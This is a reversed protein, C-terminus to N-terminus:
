CTPERKCWGLITNVDMAATARDGHGGTVIVRDSAVDEAGVYM